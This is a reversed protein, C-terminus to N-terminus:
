SNSLCTEAQECLAMMLDPRSSYVYSKHKIHIAYPPNLYYLKVFIITLIPELM